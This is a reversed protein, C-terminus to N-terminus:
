TVQAGSGFIHEAVDERLYYERQEVPWLGGHVVYYGRGEGVGGAARDIADVLSSDLIQTPGGSRLRQLEDPHLTAILAPINVM